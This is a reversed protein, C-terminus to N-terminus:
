AREGRLRRALQMDKPMITIRKAHIACLNTDEFLSTLYAEAAEQLAIIAISQFMFQKNELGHLNQCIERVLRQFPLKKILLETSKQYHRIERLAVTGPRYRHAKKKVVGGLPSTLKKGAYKKKKEEQVDQSTQEPEVAKQSIPEAMQQSLSQSLANKIAQAQLMSDITKQGHGVGTVKVNRKRPLQKQRGM